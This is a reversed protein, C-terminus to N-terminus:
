ALDRDRVHFDADIAVCQHIAYLLKQRLLDKTKYAPLELSFFCTHSMPLYDEPAGRSPTFGHIKFKQPWPDPPAPLRSRAWVFRLFEEKQSSSFESLVEWFFIVHPSDVSVDEYETNSKLYAVDITPAGCVLGRLEKHTFLPLMCPPLLEGIGERIASIADKGVSLHSKTLLRVYEMRNDWSVTIDAGGPLLPHERGVADTRTFSLPFLEAFTTETVGFAEPDALTRLGKMTHLDIEALDTEDPEEYVLQKWVLSPFSLSLHQRKFSRLAVGCLRGVFRFMELSADCHKSPLVNERGEGFDCEANPVPSFLGGVGSQLEECINTLSEAYPGGADQAGEGFLKVKWAQRTRRLRSPHVDRLQVFCQELVSTNDRESVPLVEEPEGLIDTAQPPSLSTTISSGSTEEVGTSPTRQVSQQPAPIRPSQTAADGSEAPKRFPEMRNVLLRPRSVRSSTQRLFRGLQKLKIPRAVLDRLGVIENAVSAAETWRRMNVLPFIANLRSSFVMLIAVRDIIVFRKLRELDVTTMVKSEVDPTAESDPHPLSVTPRTEDKGVELDENSPLPCDPGHTNPSLRLLPSPGCLEDSIVRIVHALKDGGVRDLVLVLDELLDSFQGALPTDTGRKSTGDWGVVLKEFNDKLVRENESRDNLFAIVAADWERYWYKASSQMRHLTVMNADEALGEAAKARWPLVPRVEMNFGWCFGEPYCLALPVELPNVDYQYRLKAFIHLFPHDHPGLTAECAECLNFSACNVCQFRPGIIPSVGCRDCTYGPHCVPQDNHAPLIARFETTRLAPRIYGFPLPIRVKIFIHTADHSSHGLRRPDTDDESEKLGHTVDCCEDCSSCYDFDFCTLCKFRPGMIPFNDCGDCAIGDHRHKNVASPSFRYKLTSTPIRLPWSPFSQAGGYVYKKPNSARKAKEPGNPVSPVPILTLIDRNYTASKHDFVVEISTAHPFNITGSLDEDFYPHVTSVTVTRMGQIEKVAELAELALRADIRRHTADSTSGFDGGPVPSYPTSKFLRLAADVLFMNELWAPLPRDEANAASPFGFSEIGKLPLDELHLGPMVLRCAPVLVDFAAQCVVPAPKVSAEWTNTKHLTGQVTSLLRRTFRYLIPGVNSFAPKCSEAVDGSAEVIKPVIYHQTLLTNTLMVVRGLSSLLTAYSQTSLVPPPVLLYLLLAQLINALNNPLPIVPIPLSSGDETTQSPTLFSADSGSHKRTRARRSGRGRRRQSRGRRSGTRGLSDKQPSEVVVEAVCSRLTGEKLSALIYDVMMDLFWCALPIGVERANSKLPDLSQMASQSVFRLKSEPLGLFDWPLQTSTRLNKTCKDTLLSGSFGNAISAVTLESGDLEEDMMYRVANELSQIVQELEPQQSSFHELLRSAHFWVHGEEKTHAGGSIKYKLFPVTQSPKSKSSSSSLGEIATELSSVTHYPVLPCFEGVSVKIATAVDMVSTNSVLTSLAVLPCDKKKYTSGLMTKDSGTKLNADENASLFLQLFTDRAYRNALSAANTLVLALSGAFHQVLPSDGQSSCVDPVISSECSVLTVDQIPVSATWRISSVADAFSVLLRDGHFSDPYSASSSPRRPTVPTKPPAGVREKGIVVGYISHPHLMNGEAKSGGCVLCDASSCGPLHRVAVLDGLAFDSLHCAARKKKVPPRFTMGPPLSTPSIESKVVCCEELFFLPAAEVDDDGDSVSRRSSDSDDMAVHSSNGSESHMGSSPTSESEDDSGESSESDNSESSLSTSGFTDRSESESAHTSSSNMEMWIQHVDPSAVDVRLLSGATGGDAPPEADHAVLSGDVAPREIALEVDDESMAASEYPSSNPDTDGEQGNAISTSRLRRSLRRGLRGLRLRLGASQGPAATEMSAGASEMPMADATRIPGTGQCEAALALKSDSPADVTTVQSTAGNTSLIPAALSTSLTSGTNSHTHVLQQSSSGTVPENVPASATRRLMSVGGWFRSAQRAAKDQKAVSILSQFAQTLKGMKSHSSDESCSERAADSGNVSGSTTRCLQESGSPEHEAQDPRSRPSNAVNEDELGFFAMLGYTGSNASSSNNSQNDLPRNFSPREPTRLHRTPDEESDPLERSTPTASRVGGEGFLTSAMLMRSAPGQSNPCSSPTPSDSALLTSVSGSSASAAVGLRLSGIRSDVSYDSEGDRPDPPPTEVSLLPPMMREPSMPLSCVSESSEQAGGPRSGSLVSRERPTSLLMAALSSPLQSDPRLRPAVPEDGSLLLTSVRSSPRESQTRRLRGTRVMSTQEQQSQPPSVNGHPPWPNGQPHPTVFLGRASSVARSSDETAFDDNTSLLVSSSTTRRPRPRSRSPERHVSEERRSPSFAGHSTARRLRDGRRRRHSTMNGVSTPLESRMRSEPLLSPEARATRRPREQQTQEPAAALLVPFGMTNEADDDMDGGSGSPSPSSQHSDALFSGTVSLLVPQSNAHRLQRSSGSSSSAQEHSVRSNARRQTRGSAHSSRATNNHVHAHIRRRPRSTTTSPTSLVTQIEDALPTSPQSDGINLSGPISDLVRSTPMESSSGEKSPDTLLTVQQAHSDRSLSPLLTGSSSAVSDDCSPGGTPALPQIPMVDIDGLVESVSTAGPGPSTLLLQTWQPRSGSEAVEAVECDPRLETARSDSVWSDYTMESQTRRIRAALTSDEPVAASSVMLPAPPPSSGHNDWVAESPPTTLGDAGPSPTRTERVREDSTSLSWSHTRMEAHREEVVLGTALLPFMTPVPSMPESNTSVISKCRLQSSSASAPSLRSSAESTLKATPPTTPPPLFPLTPHVSTAVSYVFPRQGLNVSVRAGRSHLGVCPYFRGFVGTFAVGQSIGNKTFHLVGLNPLYCCGVTDKKGFPKGYTKGDDGLSSSYKNGSDGHYGYSGSYWGPMGRLATAAPYLGIGILGEEGPDHVTLEFYYMPLIKPIPAETRFVGVDEPNSTRGTFKIALAKQVVKCNSYTPPYLASPLPATLYLSDLTPTASPTPLPSPDHSLDEAQPRVSPQSSLVVHAFPQYKQVPLSPTLPFKDVSQIEMQDSSKISGDETLNTTARGTRQLLMPPTTLEATIVPPTAFDSQPTAETLLASQPTANTGLPGSDTRSVLTHEFSSLMAETISKVRNAYSYELQRAGAVDKIGEVNQCMRVVQARCEADSLLLQRTRPDKALFMNLVRMGSTWLESELIYKELLQLADIDELMSGPAFAKPKLLTSLYGSSHQLRMPIGLLMQLSSGALESFAACWVESKKLMSPHFHHYRTRLQSKSVSSKQAEESGEPMGEALWGPSLRQLFPLPCCLESSRTYVQDQQVGVHPTVRVRTTSPFCSCQDSQIDLGSTEGQTPRDTDISVVALPLLPTHHLVTGEEGVLQRGERVWKAFKGEGLAQEMYGRLDHCEYCLKPGSMIHQVQVRSGIRIVGSAGEFFMLVAVIRKMSAVSEPDTTSCNETAPCLFPTKSPSQGEPAKDSNSETPKQCNDKLLPLGPGLMGLTKEVFAFIASKFVPLRLLTRLASIAESMIINAGEASSYHSRHWISPGQRSSRMKNSPCFKCVVERDKPLAYPLAISFLKECVNSAAATSTPAHLHILTLLRIAIVRCRVTEYGDCSVSLLLQLLANSQAPFEVEDDKTVGKRAEVFLSMVSQLQSLLLLRERDACWCSIQARQPTPTSFLSSSQAGQSPKLLYAEAVSMVSPFLANFGLLVSRGSGGSTKFALQQVLVCIHLLSWWWDRDVTFRADPSSTSRQGIGPGFVMSNARSSVASCLQEAVADALVSLTSHSLVGPPQYCMCALLRVASTHRTLRLGEAPGPRDHTIERVLFKTLETLQESLEKHRPFKNGQEPTWLDRLGPTFTPAWSDSALFHLVDAWVVQAFTVPQLNLSRLKPIVEKFFWLSLETGALVVSSVVFRAKVNWTSDLVPTVPLLRSASSETDCQDDITYTAVAKQLQAMHDSSRLLSLGNGTIDCAATADSTWSLTSFRLFQAAQRAIVCFMRRCFKATCRQWLQAPVALSTSSCPIYGSVECKFGWGRTWQKSAPESHFYIVVTDGTVCMESAGAAAWRGCGGSLRIGLPCSPGPRGFLQVYESNSSTMCAEDFRVMLYSAGPIRIVYENDMGPAYPHDSEIVTSSVGCSVPPVTIPIQSVPAFKMPRSKSSVSEVRHSSRGEGKSYELLRSEELPMTSRPPLLSLLVHLVKAIYPYVLLDFPVCNEGMPRMLGFWTGLVMDIARTCRWACSTTETVERHWSFVHLVRGLLVRTYWANFAAITPVSVSMRTAYLSKTIVENSVLGALFFQLCQAMRSAAEQTLAVGPSCSDREHCAPFALTLLDDVPACLSHFSETDLVVPVQETPSNKDGEDVEGNSPGTDASTTSDPQGLNDRIGSADCPTTQVPVGGADKRPPEAFSGESQYLSHVTALLRSIGGLRPKNEHCQWRDRPESLILVWPTVEKGIEISLEHLILSLAGLDAMNNDFSSRCTAVLARFWVSLENADSFLSKYCALVAAAHRHVESPMSDDELFRLMAVVVKKRVEKSLRTWCQLTKSKAYRQPSMHYRLLRLLVVIGQTLVGRWNSNLRRDTGDSVSVNALLNLISGLLSEIRHVGADTRDHTLANTLSLESRDSVAGKELAADPEVSSAHDSDDDSAGELITFPDSSASKLRKPTPAASGSVSAFRGRGWRELYSFLYSVIELPCAPKNPQLNVSPCSFYPETDLISSQLGHAAMWGLCFNFSWVVCSESDFCMVNGVWPSGSADHICRTAGNVVDVVYCSSSASYASPSQAGCLVLKKGNAYVTSGPLYGRLEDPIDVWTTRVVRVAGLEVSLRELYAIVHKTNREKRHIRCVHFLYMYEGCGVLHSVVQEVVADETIIAYPTEPACSFDPSTERQILSVNPAEMSTTEAPFSALGDVYAFNHIHAKGCGIECAEEDCSPETKDASQAGLQRWMDQWRLARVQTPVWPSLLKWGRLAIEPGKENSPSTMAAGPVSASASAGSWGNNAGESSIGNSTQPNDHDRDGSSRVDDITPSSPFTQLDDGVPVNSSRMIDCPPVIDDSPAPRPLLFYLSGDSCSMGSAAQEVENTSTKGVGLNIKVRGLYAGMPRSARGHAVFFVVSSTTTDWYLLLRERGYRLVSLSRGEQFASMINCDSGCGLPPAADSLFPKRQCYADSYCPSRPGGIGELSCQWRGLISSKAFVLPLPDHPTVNSLRALLDQVGDIDQQSVSCGDLPLFAEITSIIHAAYGTAVALATLCTRAHTQCTTISERLTESVDKLGKASLLYSLWEHLGSISSVLTKQQRSAQLSRATFMDSLGLVPIARLVELSSCVSNISIDVCVATNKRDELHFMVRSMMSDLSSLVLTLCAMSPPVSSLDLIAPKEPHRAESADKRVNTKNLNNFMDRCLRVVLETEQDIRKSVYTGSHSSQHLRSLCSRIERLMCCSKKWHLTNYIPESLVEYDISTEVDDSDVKQSASVSKEARSAQDGKLRIQFTLSSFGEDDFTYLDPISM